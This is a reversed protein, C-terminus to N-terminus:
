QPRNAGLWARLGALDVVEGLFEARMDVFQMLNTGTGICPWPPPPKVFAQGRRMHSRDSCLARRYEAAPVLRFLPRYRRAIADPDPFTAALYADARVPSRLRSDPDVICWAGGLGVLLM